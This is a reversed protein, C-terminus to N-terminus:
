TQSKLFKSILGLSYTAVVAVLIISDIVNRTRSSVFHVAGFLRAESRLGAPAAASFTLTHAIVHVELEQHTQEYDRNLWAADTFIFFCSAILAHEEGVGVIRLLFTLIEDGFISTAHLAIPKIKWLPLFL